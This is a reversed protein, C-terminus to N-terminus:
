RASCPITWSGGALRRCPRRSRGPSLMVRGRSTLAGGGGFELDSPALETRFEAQDGGAGGRVHRDQRVYLGDVCLKGSTGTALLAALALTM